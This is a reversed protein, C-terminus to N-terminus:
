NEQHIKETPILHEWDGPEPLQNMSNRHSPLLNVDLYEQGVAERESSVSAVPGHTRNLDQEGSFHSSGYEGKMQEQHNQLAGEQEKRESCGLMFVFVVLFLWKQSM